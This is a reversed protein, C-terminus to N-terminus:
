VVSKRDVQNTSEHTVELRDWIKKISNCTFICNFENADLACYLINMAKANLQIIKKDFEDWEGKSKSLSLSDILKTLTHSGNVIISWIDYDLVQIFIRM